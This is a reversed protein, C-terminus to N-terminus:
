AVPALRGGQDSVGRVDGDALMQVRGACPHLVPGVPLLELRGPNADRGGVRGLADFTVEPRPQDLADPRVQRFLEHVGEAGAHEVDDIALGIAEQVDRPDAADPRAADHLVPLALAGDALDHHEQVRMADARAAGHTDVPGVAGIRDLDEGLIGYRRARSMRPM